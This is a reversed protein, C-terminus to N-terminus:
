AMVEKPTSLVVAARNYAHQYSWRDELELRSGDWTLPWAKPTTDSSFYRDVQHWTMRQVPVWFLDGIIPLQLAVSDIICPSGAAETALDLLFGHPIGSIGSGDRFKQIFWGQVYIVRELLHDANQQDGHQAADDILRTHGLCASPYCDGASYEPTLNLLQISRARDWSTAPYITTM